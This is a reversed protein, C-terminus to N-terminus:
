GIISEVNMNIYRTVMTPDAWGITRQIKPVSFKYTLDYDRARTARIDHPTILYPQLIRYGFQRNFTFLPKDDNIISHAHNLIEIIFPHDYEYKAVRDTYKPKIGSKLVRVQRVVFWKKGKSDQVNELQYKKIKGPRTIESIRAGTIFLMAVFARYKQNDLDNIINLIDSKKILQRKKYLDEASLRSSTRPMM